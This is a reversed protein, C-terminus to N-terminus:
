RVPLGAARCDLCKWATPMHAPGSASGLWGQSRNSLASTRSREGAVYDDNTVFAGPTPRPHTFHEGAGAGDCARAQAFVNQQQGVAAGAAGGAQASAVDSGSAAM